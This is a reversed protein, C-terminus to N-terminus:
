AHTNLVINRYGMRPRRNQLYLMVILAKVTRLLKLKEAQSLHADPALCVHTILRALPQRLVGRPRPQPPGYTAVRAAGRSRDGDPAIRVSAGRARAGGECM